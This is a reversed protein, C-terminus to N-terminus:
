DRSLEEIISQSHEGLEPGRQIHDSEKCASFKIPNGPVKIGSLFDEAFTKLMHRQELQPEQLMQDINNISGAPIGHQHFLNLWHEVSQEGLLRNLALTLAEVNLLRVHNSAFREDDAAEPKGMLECLKRFLKDNGICISIPGDKAQYVDFPALLSHRNGTAVPTKHNAMAPSVTTQLLAVLSDLMAIDIHSGKGTREKKVLAANIGIAAFLGSILDAIETGVRLPKDNPHGTLSMLGSIGQAVLDYCALHSKDGTQGFGSISAYVIDPKIAQVQEYDYGISKMFGPTFNEVLVDARLLLQEFIKRDEANNKIDLAISEKGHNIAHFPVPHNDRFPPYMRSDDGIPPKEVKIVRAGLNLLNSTCYPGSLVRTLDIILTNKLPLEDM